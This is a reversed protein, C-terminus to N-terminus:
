FGLPYLAIEQLHARSVLCSAAIKGSVKGRDFYHQWNEAPHKSFKGHVYVCM